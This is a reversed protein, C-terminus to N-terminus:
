FFAKIGFAGLTQPTSQPAQSVPLGTLNFGPTVAAEKLYDVFTKTGNIYFTIDRWPEFAVGLTVNFIDVRRGNLIFTQDFSSVSDMYSYRYDAGANYLLKGTSDYLNEGREILEAELDISWKQDPAWHLGTWYSLANPGIQAGLLTQSSSYANEYDWHTYLYPKIYMWEAKWDLNPIGFPNAWMAGLQWGWKNSWYGTGIKSAVLDDLLFQGRLEIGKGVNWRGHAALLANDHDQDDLGKKITNLFAFPSLYGLELRYSFVMIDTFGLELDNGIGFTLDHLM